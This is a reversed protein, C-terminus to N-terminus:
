CFGKADIAEQNQRYQEVSEMIVQPNAMLYDHIATDLAAKQEASFASAAAPAAAEEAKVAVPAFALIIATMAILPAAIFTSRTV